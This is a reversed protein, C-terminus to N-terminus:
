SSFLINKTSINYDNKQSDSLEDYSIPNLITPNSINGSNKYTGTLIIINKENKINSELTYSYNNNSGDKTLKLSYLENIVQYNYINKTNEKTETLVSYLVDNKYYKLNTNKPNTNIEFKSKNGENDTIVINGNEYNIVTRKDTTKNNIIVKIFLINNQIADNKMDISIAYNDELQLNNKNANVITNLDQTNLILNILIVPKGNDIYVKKTYKNSNLSVFNSKIDEILSSYNELNYMTDDLNLISDELLKHYLFTYIDNQNNDIQEKYDSFTYLNRTTKIYQNNLKSTTIYNNNGDYYYMISNNGQSLIKSTKDKDKLFEYNYKLNNFTITGTFNYNKSEYNLGIDKYIASYKNLVKSINNLFISESALVTNFYIIYSIIIIIISIFFAIFLSKKFRPHNNKPKEEIYVKKEKLISDYKDAM